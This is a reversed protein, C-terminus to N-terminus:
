KGQNYFAERAKADADEMAKQKQLKSQYGYETSQQVAQEKMRRKSAAAGLRMSAKELEGMTGGLDGVKGTGMRDYSKSISTTSPRLSSLGQNSSNMNSSRENFSYPSSSIPSMGTSWNNQLANQKKM